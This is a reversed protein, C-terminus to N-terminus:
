TTQLNLERSYATVVYDGTDKDVISIQLRVLESDFSVEIDFCDEFM